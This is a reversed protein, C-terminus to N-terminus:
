VSYTFNQAYENLSHGLVCMLTSHLHWSSLLQEAFLKSWAWQTKRLSFGVPSYKMRSQKHSPQSTQLTPWFYLFSRVTLELKHNSTPLCCHHKSQCSRYRQRLFSITSYPELQSPSEVGVSNLSVIVLPPTKNPTKKNKPPKKIRKWFCQNNQKQVVYCM